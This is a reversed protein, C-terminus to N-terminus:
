SSLVEITRPCRHPRGTPCWDDWCNLGRAPDRHVSLRCYSRRVDDPGQACPCVIVHDGPRFTHGCGPCEMSTPGSGPQTLQVDGEALRYVPVDGVPPWATLIGAVLEGVVPSGASGSTTPGANGGRGAVDHADPDDAEHGQGGGVASGCRLAPDLHRIDNRGPGVHVADGRRFTHDCYPCRRGLWRSTGTIVTVGDPSSRIQPHLGADLGRQFGVAADISEEAGNEAASVTGPPLTTSM